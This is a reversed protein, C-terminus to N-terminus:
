RARAWPDFSVRLLVGDGAVGGAAARVAEVELRTGAGQLRWGMGWARRGGDAALRVYSTALARGGSVNLGYGLQAAMRPGAGSIVRAAGPRGDADSWLREVGSRATGWGPELRFSLGRGSAQAKMDVSVVAGWERFAEDGHAVVTRARGAVEVRGGGYEVGGGLELGGGSEAAGGDHRAGVEGVLKLLGTDLTTSRSAEILLRLRTADADTAAADDTAVRTLFMDSKVALELGAVSALSGRAGFAGTTADLDYTTAPGNGTLTVNGAARGLLGWASLSGRSLRVYPYAGTLSSEVAKGPRAPFGDTALLRFDGRGVSHAVAVGALLAGQEFDAGGSVTAVIGDVGLRTQEGGFDTAALRGWATWRGGAATPASLSLLGPQGFASLGGSSWSGWVARAARGGTGGQHRVRGGGEGRRREQRGTDDRRRRDRVVEGAVGVDPGARLRADVAGVVHSAAARGFRSNWAGLLVEDEVGPTPTAAGAAAPGEGRANVARVEFAYSRGNELDRVTAATGLGADMWAGHADAAPGWRYEYREVPLGGDDDPARWVIDVEGSGPVLMLVPATPVDAPIARASATEGAGVDNVARVEFVYEVGNILDGVGATTELSSSVWQGFPDGEPQWRYEYRRLPSGGDDDPVEWRLEVRGNGAALTLTPAAPPAAERPTANAAAVPGAGTGNVARVEFTYETGNDLAGVSVELARGADVWEGFTGGVARHRHEYRLIASGGTDAPPQWQLLVAGDRRFALVAPADPVSAPTAVVQAATGTGVGNVARVEFTHRVGDVLGSITAAFEVGIDRWSGFAEDAARFRYEYRLVATGGDDEPATWSLAVSGAAPAAALRGPAGPLSAPRATVQAADGEGVANAARVEFTHEEGNVLGGLTATTAVGVSEWAGFEGGGVRWRVEYRTVASGGDSSPTSWALAVTGGRLNTAALARPVSPPTAAAVPTASALAAAGAGVATEARVEFEYAVGNTLGAVVASPERGVQIWDGFRSGVARFRYAFGAIEAGGDDGPVLWTLRVEADAARAALSRPPAAVGAPMASASAAPGAGVRNVARVEFEYAVGNRLGGVTVAQATGASAWSGFDTGAGDASQRWRYEYGSVPFPGPAPAGWRLGVQRDGATAVVGVPSGPLGSAAPAEARASARAAPGPGAASRARVEFVYDVGPDLGDVSVATDLGVSAWEGLVGGHGWRYEYSVIGVAGATPEWALVVSREGSTATLRVRALGADPTARVSGPEGEGFANVARVEFVYEVGNALGAVTMGRASAPSGGGDVPVVTWAGLAEGERAWRYDYRLVSGGALRVEPWSLAVAGDAVVATLTPVGPPSGVVIETLAWDGTGDGANGATPPCPVLDINCARVRFAYRQGEDLNPISTEWADSSATPPLPCPDWDSAAVPAAQYECEYRVVPRGGDPADAWTLTVQRESQSARLNRPAGPSPGPTASVEIPPSPGAANVSRVELTYEVGNTLDGVTARVASGADLWANFRGDRERWRYEYRAVQETGPPATWTLAVLADQVIAELSSPARPRAAPTLEIMVSTGAGKGNGARLSVNYTTGNALPRDETHTVTTTYDPFLTGTSVGSDEWDADNQCTSPSEAVCYEYRNVPAGGDDDPPAWYLTFSRDGVQGALDKPAGPASASPTVSAAGGPYSADVPPGEGFINTARVQFRYDAYRLDIVDISCNAGEPTGTGCADAAALNWRPRDAGLGTPYTALDGFRYQYRIPSLPPNGAAEPDIGGVDTPRTWSLRVTGSAELGADTAVVATPAGPPSPLQIAHYYTSGDVQVSDGATAMGQEEAPVPQARHCTPSSEDDTATPWVCLVGSVEFDYTGPSLGIRVLRDPGDEDYFPDADWDRPDECPREGGPSWRRGTVPCRFDQWGTAGSERYRYIQTAGLHSVHHHQGSVGTCSHRRGEAQTTGHCNARDALRKTQRWRLTVSDRELAVVEVDIPPFEPDAVDSDNDDTHAFATAAAGAGLAVAFTRLARRWRCGRMAAATRFDSDLTGWMM